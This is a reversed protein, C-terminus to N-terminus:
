SCEPQHRLVLTISSMYRAFWYSLNDFTPTNPYFYLPERKLISHLKSIYFQQTYDFSVALGADAGLRKAERHTMYRTYKKIYDAACEGFERERGGLIALVREKFFIKAMMRIFLSSEHDQSRTSHLRPGGLNCEEVSLSSNFGWDPEPARKQVPM